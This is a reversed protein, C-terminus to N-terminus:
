IDDARRIAVMRVPRTVLLFRGMALQRAAQWTMSGIEFDINWDNLRSNNQRRRRIFYCFRPWIGILDLGQRVVHNQRPLM